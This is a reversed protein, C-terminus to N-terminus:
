RPLGHEHCYYVTRHNKMFDIVADAVATPDKRHLLVETIQRAIWEMHTEKMGLRTVEVTGLRIGSERTPDIDWPLPMENAIINAAELRQVADRGCAFPKSDIVIQHTQTYGKERYFATVGLNDLSRALAQANRVVQTMYAGGYELLETAAVALAAVRNIQHSGTLTPFIATHIPETLENDNWAMIGGQPGSFTKGSSGTMLDAGDQLPDQFLGASILGLQHAADFYVKGGWPSVIRKIEAIPLAFLTLTMGLGIVSPKLYRAIQEFRELDMDSSRHHFPIDWIRLGRVGPPGNHRNSTDGGRILPVTMVTDSPRTLATYATLVASMGGMLRHDAHRAAFTMKLLEVCLSELEDIHKMGSFFRQARGIHGGSARTGVESSLLSRVGPSTPSEAAVLNICQQGRWQANRAVAATVLDAMASHSRAQKLLTRAKELCDADHM